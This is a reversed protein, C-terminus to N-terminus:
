VRPRIEAECTVATVRPKGQDAGGRYATRLREPRHIGGMKAAM